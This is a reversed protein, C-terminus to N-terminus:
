FYLKCIHYNHEHKYIIVNRFVQYVVYINDDYLSKIVHYIDLLIDFRVGPCLLQLSAACQTMM